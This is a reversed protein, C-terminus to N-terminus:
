IPLLTFNNYIYDASNNTYCMITEQWMKTWLKEVNWRGSLKGQFKPVNDMIRIVCSLVLFNIWISEKAVVVM